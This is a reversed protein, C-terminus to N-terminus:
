GTLVRPAWGAGRGPQGGGRAAGWPTGGDRHQPSTPPPPRGAAPSLAAAPVGHTQQTEPLDSRVPNPCTAATAASGPPGTSTGPVLELGMDRQAHTSGRCPEGFWHGAWVRLTPLATPSATAEGHRNIGDHHHSHQRSRPGAPVRTASPSPVTHRTHQTAQQVRAAM